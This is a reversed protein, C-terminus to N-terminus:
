SRRPFGPVRGDAAYSCSQPREVVDHPLAVRSLYPMPIVGPEARATVRSQTSVTFPSGQVERECTAFYCVRITM